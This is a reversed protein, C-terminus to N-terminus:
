NLFVFFSVFLLFLLTATDSTEEYTSGSGSFFCGSINTKHAHRLVLKSSSNNEFVCNKNNLVEKINLINSSSTLKDIILIKNNKIIKKALNSGIFGAGGTIIINKM